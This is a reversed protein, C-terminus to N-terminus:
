IPIPIQNVFEGVVKKWGNELPGKIGTVFVKGEAVKVLGKAGLLQNIIPIVQQCNGAKDESPIRETNNDPNPCLETVLVAYKTGTPLNVKKLFNQMNRPPKGFRGPSSFLYLDAPTVEKPKIERINHINVMVGKVDMQSKFEDAITAGNGYISSHYYGINM